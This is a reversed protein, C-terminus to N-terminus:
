RRVVKKFTHKNKINAAFHQGISPAKMMDAYAKPTVGNYTYTQGNHFTVHLEGTVPDHQADLINKPRQKKSRGTPKM